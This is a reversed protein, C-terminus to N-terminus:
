IRHIISSPELSVCDVIKASCERTVLDRVDIRSSETIHRHPVQIERSVRQIVEISIGEVM